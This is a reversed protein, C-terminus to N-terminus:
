VVKDVIINNCRIDCIIECDKDWWFLRTYLEVTVLTTARRTGAVRRVSCRTVYLEFTCKIGRSHQHKVVIIGETRGPSSSQM